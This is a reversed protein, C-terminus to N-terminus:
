KLGDPINPINVKTMGVLSNTNYNLTDEFMVWVEPWFTSPFLLSIGENANFTAKLLVIEKNVSDVSVVHSHLSDYIDM